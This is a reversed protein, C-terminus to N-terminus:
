CAQKRCVMSRCGSPKPIVTHPHTHPPCKMRTGNRDGSQAQLANPSPRQGTGAAHTHAVILSSKPLVPVSCRNWDSSGFHRAAGEEGAARQPQAPRGAPGQVQPPEGRRQARRRRLPAARFSSPVTGLSADLPAHQSERAIPVKDPGPESSPAKLGRVRLAEARRSHSCLPGAPAPARPGRSQSRDGRSM